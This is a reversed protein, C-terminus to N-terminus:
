GAAQLREDMVLRYGVRPRAVVELGHGLKQRLRWMAVKAAGKSVGGGYSEIVVDSLSVPKGNHAVLCALVRRETPTLPAARGASDLVASPMSGRYRRLLARALAVVVRGSSPRRLYFDAGLDLTDIEEPEGGGGILIVPADTIRRLVPLLDGAELPPVEETLLILSPHRELTEFLGEVAAQAEVVQFGAESFARALRRREVEDPDVILIM